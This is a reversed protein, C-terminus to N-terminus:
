GPILSADGALNKEVSGGPFGWYNNAVMEEEGTHADMVDTIEYTIPLDPM